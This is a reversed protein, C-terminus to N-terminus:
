FSIGLIAMHGWESVGICSTPAMVISRNGKNYAFCELEVYAKYKAMYFLPLFIFPYGTNKVDVGFSRVNVLLVIEEEGQEAIIAGALVLQQCVFNEVFAADSESVDAGSIARTVVLVRKGNLAAFQAGALRMGSQLAQSLNRQVEASRPSKEVNAVFPSACGVFLFSVGVVFVLIKM